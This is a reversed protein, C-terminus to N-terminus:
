IAALERTLRLDPRFTEAENFATVQPAMVIPLSYTNTVAGAGSSSTAVNSVSTVTSGLPVTFVTNTNTEYILIM